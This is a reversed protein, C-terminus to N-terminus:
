PHLLSLGGQHWSVSSFHLSALSHDELLVRERLTAAASFVPILVYACVPPAVSGGLCVRVKPSIYFYVKKPKKMREIATGTFPATCDEKQTPSSPSQQGSVNPPSSPPYLYGEFFVGVGSRSVNNEM